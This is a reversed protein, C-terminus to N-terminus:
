LWLTGTLGSTPVKRPTYATCGPCRAPHNSRSGFSAPLSRASRRGLVSSLLLRVVGNRRTFRGGLWASSALVSPPSIIEVHGLQGCVPNGRGTYAGDVGFGSMGIHRESSHMVGAEGERSATKMGFEQGILARWDIWEGIGNVRGLLNAGCDVFEDSVSEDDPHGM